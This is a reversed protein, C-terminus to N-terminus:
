IGYRVLRVIEDLIEDQSEVKDRLMDVEMQLEEAERTSPILEDLEDALEYSYYERIIRSIDELTEIKEWHGEICVM